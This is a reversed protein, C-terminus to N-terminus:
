WDKDDLHIWHHVVGILVLVIGQISLVASVIPMSDGYKFLLSSTLMCGLMAVMIAKLMGLISNTRM